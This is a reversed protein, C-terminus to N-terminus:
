SNKVYIDSNAMVEDYSPPLPVDPTVPPATLSIENYTPPPETPDTGTDDAENSDLTFSSLRSRPPDTPSGEDSIHSVSHRSTRSRISSRRAQSVSSNSECSDLLCGIIPANRLNRRKWYAEKLFKWVIFSAILAIVIFAINKINDLINEWFSKVEEMTTNCDSNDGCPNLGLCVFDKDICRQNACTYTNDYDECEGDFYSLFTMNFKVRYSSWHLRRAKKFVITLLNDKSAFTNDTPSSNIGCLPNRLGTISKQLYVGTQIEGDVITVNVDECDGEMEWSSFSLLIGPSHIFGYSRPQVYTTCEYNHDSPLYNSDFTLFGGRWDTSEGAMKDCLNHMNFTPVAAYVVKPIVSYIVCSTLMRFLAM